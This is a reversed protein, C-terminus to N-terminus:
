HQELLKKLVWILKLKKWISLNDLWYGLLFGNIQKGHM